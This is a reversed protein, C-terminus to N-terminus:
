TLAGGKWFRLDTLLDDAQAKRAQPVRYFKFEAADWGRKGARWGALGLGVTQSKEKL